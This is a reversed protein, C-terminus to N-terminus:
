AHVVLIISIEGLFELFLTLQLENNTASDAYKFLLKRVLRVYEPGAPHPFWFIRFDFPCVPLRFDPNEQAKISSFRLLLLLAEEVVVVFTHSHTKAGTKPFSCKACHVDIKRICLVRSEM